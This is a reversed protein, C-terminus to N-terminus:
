RRGGNRMPRYMAETRLTYKYGALLESGEHYLDQTFLLCSGAGPQCVVNPGGRDSLFTTGGGHGEPVDHLYLQVTVRSGDGANPHGPPRRYLGDHHPAFYQGPTYCLIRCRDNLDILCSSSCTQPLHPYLVQLLWTALDPSDVIVRHGDRAEPMLVQRGGGINILAPTFGKRNVSSILAACDEEDLVGRVVRAFSGPYTKVGKLRLEEVVTKKSQSRPDKKYVFAPAEWPERTRDPDDEATFEQHNKWPMKHFHPPELPRGALLLNFVEPEAM